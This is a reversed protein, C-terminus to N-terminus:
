VDYRNHIFETLSKIDRLSLEGVFRFTIKDKSLKSVNGVDVYSEKVLGAQRWDTLPFYNRKIKEPKQSFKSTIRYCFVNNETDHIVLIPRRKGDTGWSVYATYIENIKM